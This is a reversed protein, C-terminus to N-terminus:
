GGKLRLAEDGENRLPFVARLDEGEWVQGLDIATAEYVLKPQAAAGPALSLVFLLVSFAQITRFM